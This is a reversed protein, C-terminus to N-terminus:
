EGEVNTLLGLAESLFDRSAARLPLLTRAAADWDVSLPDEAADRASELQRDALGLASLCEGIKSNAQERAFVYFPTRFQYGFIMGHFSNTVLFRAHKVLSLFEEVGADYAMRHRSANEARLSIEVVDWGNQGALREAYETMEPNHRRSYLLVYGGEQQRPAVIPAYDDADLLLTPDVVRRAPVDTHGKVYPLMLNERLGIALFNFLRQDLVDYDGESFHPDGFSPAYAVSRGRMCDYDAYYGREFGDFEDPCFITDSGCVFRSIGDVATIKEFNESTYAGRSRNLRNTYFDDFKDANVAIAPLSLRCNRQSVEDTDWMFSLPNRVDKGALCDPCYDVLVPQLETGMSDGAREIARHLAWTQLASGYNTFNVHINISMTGIKTPM